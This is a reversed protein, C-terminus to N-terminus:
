GPASIRTAFFFSKDDAMGLKLADRQRIFVLLIDQFPLDPLYQIPQLCFPQFAAPVPISDSLQFSGPFPQLVAQCLQIGPLLLVIHHCKLFQANVMKVNVLCM